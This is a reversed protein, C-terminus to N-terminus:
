RLPNKLKCLMCERVHQNPYFFCFFCFFGFFLLSPISFPDMKWSLCVHLPHWKCRIIESNTHFYTNAIIHYFIKKVRFTSPFVVCLLPLNQLNLLAVLCNLSTINININNPKSVWCRYIQWLGPPFERSTLTVIRRGAWSHHLTVQRCKNNRRRFKGRFAKYDSHRLPCM